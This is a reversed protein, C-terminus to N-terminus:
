WDKLKIKSGFCSPCIIKGSSSKNSLLTGEGNCVTCPEFIDMNIKTFDINTNPQHIMFNSIDEVFTYDSEFDEIYFWQINGNEYEIKIARETILLVNIQFIDHNGFRKILYTGNVVLENIKM